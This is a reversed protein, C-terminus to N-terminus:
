GPFAMSRMTAMYGCPWTRPCIFGHRCRRRAERSAVYRFFDRQAVEQVVEVYDFHGNHFQEVVYAKNREYILIPPM